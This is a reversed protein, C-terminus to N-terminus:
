GAGAIGIGDAATSAVPMAADGAVVAVAVPTQAELFGVDEEAVLPHPQSGLPVHHPHPAEPDTDTTPKRRSSM